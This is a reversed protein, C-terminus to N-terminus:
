TIYKSVSFALPAFLKPSGATLEPNQTLSISLVVQFNLQNRYLVSRHPANPLPLKLAEVHGGAMKKNFSTQMGMHNGILYIVM